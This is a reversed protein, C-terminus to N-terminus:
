VTREDVSLSFKKSLSDVAVGVAISGRGDFDGKFDCEGANGGIGFTRRQQFEGFAVAEFLDTAYKKICAFENEQSLQCSDM